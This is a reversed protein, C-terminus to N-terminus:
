ASVRIYCYICVNPRVHSHSGINFTIFLYLTGPAFYTNFFIGSIVDPSGPLLRCETVHVGSNQFQEVQSGSTHWM